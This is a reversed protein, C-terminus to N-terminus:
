ENVLRRARIVTMCGYRVADVAHDNVKVPKEHGTQALAKDDWVKSNYPCAIGPKLLNMAVLTFDSNLSYM